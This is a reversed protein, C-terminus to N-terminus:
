AALAVEAFKRAFVSRVRTNCLHRLMGLEVILKRVNRTPV